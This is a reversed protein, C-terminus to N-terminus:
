AEPGPRVSDGAPRARASVECALLADLLAVTAQPGDVTVAFRRGDTLDLVIAPGSRLVLASRGPLIRYGWGGWDLAAISEATAEAIAVLPVKKVTWGWPGIGIRLGRPDVTVQVWSLAGVPLALLALLAAQAGGAVFGLVAGAVAMATAVALPWVMFIRHTWVAREGPALVLGSTSAAGEDVLRLTHHTRPRRGLVLLVLPVALLGAV